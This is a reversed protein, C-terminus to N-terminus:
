KFVIRDGSVADVAVFHDGDRLVLTQEDGVLVMNSLMELPEGEGIEDGSLQSREGTQLDIREIGVPGVPYSYSTYAQQWTPAVLLSAGEIFGAFGVSSAKSVLVKSAVDSAVPPQAPNIAVRYLDGLADLVLLENGISAIAASYWFDGFALKKTTARQRDYVFLDASSKSGLWYRSGDAAAMLDILDLDRADGAYNLDLLQTHAFFDSRISDPKVAYLKTKNYTTIVPLNLDSPVGRIRPGAIGDSALLATLSQAQTLVMYGEPSADHALAVPLDVFDEFVGENAPQYRYASFPKDARLTLGAFYRTVSDGLLNLESYVNIDREDLLLGASQGVSALTSGGYLLSGFSQQGSLLSAVKSQPDYSSLTNRVGDVYVYRDLVTDYALDTITLASPADRAVDLVHSVSNSHLDIALLQQLGAVVWLQRKEDFALAEYGDARFVGAPLSTEPLASNPMPAIVTAKAQDFVESVAGSDMNISWIKKAFMSVVLLQHNKEDIAIDTVGALSFRPTISLGDIRSGVVGVEELEGAPLSDAFGATITALLSTKQNAVDYSYIAGSLWDAVFLRKDAESYEVTRIDTNAFYTSGGAGTKLALTIVGANASDGVDGVPVQDSDKSVVAFHNSTKALAIDMLDGTADALLEGSGPLLERKGSDLNVTFIARKKNDVVYALRKDADISFGALDQWLPEQNIAYESVDVVKGDVRLKLQMKNTVPADSIQWKGDAAVPMVIPALGEASLEVEANSYPNDANVRGRFNLSSGTFNFNTLPPFFVQLQQAEQFDVSFGLVKDPWFSQNGVCYFLELAYGEQLNLNGKYVPLLAANSLPFNKIWPQVTTIDQMPLLQGGGNMSYIQSARSLSDGNLSTSLGAKVLLYIDGHQAEHQALPNLEVYIDSTDGPTVRTRFTQGGDASPGGNLQWHEIAPNDVCSQAIAFTASFILVAGAALRSLNCLRNM